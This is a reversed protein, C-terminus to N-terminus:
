YYPTRQRLGNKVEALYADADFYREDTAYSAPAGIAHELRNAAVTLKQALWRLGSATPRLALEPM